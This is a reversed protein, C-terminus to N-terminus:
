KRGGTYFPQLRLCLACTVKSPDRTVHERVYGCATSKDYEAQTQGAARHDGHSKYEHVKM